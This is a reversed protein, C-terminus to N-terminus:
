QRGLATEATAIAYAVRWCMDEPTELTGDSGKALYRERLVRLASESWDGPKLDAPRVATSIGKTEVTATDM